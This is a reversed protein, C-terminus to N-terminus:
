ITISVFKSLAPGWGVTAKDKWLPTVTASVGDTLQQADGPDTTLPYDPPRNWQYPRHLALDPRTPAASAGVAVTALALAGFFTTRVGGSMGCNRRLSRSQCAGSTSAM